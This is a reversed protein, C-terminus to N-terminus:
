GGAEAKHSVAEKWRKIANIENMADKVSGDPSINKVLVVDVISFEYKSM